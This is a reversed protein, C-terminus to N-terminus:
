WKKVAFQSFLTNAHQNTLPPAIDSLKMEGSNPVKTQCTCISCQIYLNRCQRVYVIFKALM